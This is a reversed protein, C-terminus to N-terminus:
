VGSSVSAQGSCTGGGTVVIQLGQGTLSSQISCNGSDGRYLDIIGNNAVSWPGALTNNDKDQIAITGALTLTVSLAHLRQSGAGKPLLEQKGATNVRVSSFTLNIGSLLGISEETAPNITNGDIDFVQAM